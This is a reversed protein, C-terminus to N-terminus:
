RYSGQAYQQYGDPGTQYAGGTARYYDEDTSYHQRSGDMGISTQFRQRPERERERPDYAKMRSPDYRDASYREREREYSAYRRAEEM